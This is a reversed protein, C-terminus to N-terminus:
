KTECDLSAIQRSKPVLLSLPPFAQRQSGVSDGVQGTDPHFQTQELFGM